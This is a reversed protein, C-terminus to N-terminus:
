SFKLYKGLKVVNELRPGIKEKINLTSFFMFVYFLKDIISYLSYLCIKHLIRLSHFHKLLTAIFLIIRYYIENWKVLNERSSRLTLWIKLCITKIMFIGIPSKKSIGVQLDFLLFGKLNMGTVKLFIYIHKVKMLFM